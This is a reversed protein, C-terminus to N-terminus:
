MSVWLLSDATYFVVTKSPEYHYIETGSIVKDSPKEAKGLVLKYSVNIENKASQIYEM